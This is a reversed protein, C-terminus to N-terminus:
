DNYDTDHQEGKIQYRRQIEEVMEGQIDKLADYIERVPKQQDEDLRRLMRHIKATLDIVAAGGVLEARVAANVAQRNSKRGYRDKLERIGM